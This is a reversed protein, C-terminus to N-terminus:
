NYFVHGGIKGLYNANEAWAPNAKDPNYFYLVPESYVTYGNNYVAEVAKKVEMSVEGQYPDAFQYPATLVEEYTLGWLEARDKITQAVAAMGDFSEGRAEAAVVKEIMSREEATLKAPNEYTCYNENEDAAFAVAYPSDKCEKDIILISGAAIALVTGAVIPYFRRKLRYRKM